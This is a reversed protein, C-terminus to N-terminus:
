FKLQTSLAVGISYIGGEVITSARSTDKLNGYYRFEPSASLSFFPWPEYTIGAGLSMGLRWLNLELYRQLVKKLSGSVQFYTVSSSPTREGSDRSM